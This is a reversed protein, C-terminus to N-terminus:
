VKGEANAKMLADYLSIGAPVSLTSEGAHITASSLLKETPSLTRQKESVLSSSLFLALSLVCLLVATIVFKKKM